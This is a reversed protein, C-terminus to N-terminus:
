NKRKKLVDRLLEYIESFTSPKIFYDSAGLRKLEDRDVARTSTTYMIVPISQYDKSNKLRILCDRGNMLPMNIDLFILDPLVITNELFSFLNIGDTVTQCVIKSDITRIAECFVEIDEPDDEAYLVVM